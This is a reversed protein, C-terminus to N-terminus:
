SNAPGYMTKLNFANMDNATDSSADTLLKGFTYAVNFNTTATRRAVKVQLSHYNSTAASMFQQITSYGAYPRVSNENTTSAVNNLTPWTPQNIDPEVLLHRGLSGVYGTELFLKLPLERQVTLSFQEAYPTKLNPDITQIAGWPVSVTQGGTITSLNGYNFSASGVYPPNNLTYFTPNGQIRDYFLGFGGRVVTKP